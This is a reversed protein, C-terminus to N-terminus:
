VDERGIEKRFYGQLCHLEGMFMLEMPKFVHWIKKRNLTMMELWTIKWGINLKVSIMYGYDM